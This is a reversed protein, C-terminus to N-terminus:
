VVFIALMASIPQTNTHEEPVVAVVVLSNHAITLLIYVLEEVVLINLDAAIWFAVLVAVDNIILM